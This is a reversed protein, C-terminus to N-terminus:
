KAAPEPLGQLGSFVIAGDFSLNRRLSVNAVPRTRGYVWPRQGYYSKATNRKVALKMAFAVTPADQLDLYNLDGEAQICLQGLPESNIHCALLASFLSVDSLYIDEPRYGAEVAVEAVGFKGACPIVLKPYREKANSFVTKLYGRAKAPAGGVFIDGRDLM